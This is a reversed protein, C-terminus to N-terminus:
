RSVLKNEYYSKPFPVYGVGYSINEASKLYFNVFEKVRDDEMAQNNIYLYLSRTFPKYSNQAITKLSPLVPGKGADIAIAKVSEFNKKYYAFGVFAIAHVDAKLDELMEEDDAYAIHAPNIQNATGVTHEVFFDFTGSDRDPGMLVIEEKPWEARLDSWFRVGSDHKWIKTLEDVTLHDIFSNHPNTIVTIGDMAIKFETFNIGNEVVARLEEDTIRRSANNIHSTGAIFKKFGGGTGSVAISLDIKNNYRRYLACVAKSIPYVTSSGDIVIKSLPSEDQAAQASLNEYNLFAFCFVSLTLLLKKM